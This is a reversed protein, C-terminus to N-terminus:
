GAAKHISPVAAGIDPHGGSVARNLSEIVRAQSREDLGPWIPLDIKRMWTEYTEPLSEPGFGFRERYFPQTHIPPFSLRTEIGERSLQAVIGDRAQRPVKVSYMYWSHRTAYDPVYPPVVHETVQFAATYRAALREKEALREEIRRLQVLGLAGQMETMRYNYGLVVHHYRGSQGQNLIMRMHAQLREDNTTIMGGEGTTIIKNPFFSFCHIPAIAGVRTGRYAAGLSEASDLIVALGHEEAFALIPEYDIPLGNMEVPIVARTARTLAARLRETDVNYTDPDCECLVPHAGQYLVANATAVFTLSPLVVDDGPGINLAALAVHLAATGTSLAIAYRAGVYEAFAEEFERVKPGASLRGSRIVAAVAEAEEEGVSVNAVPIMPLNTPWTGSMHEASGKM